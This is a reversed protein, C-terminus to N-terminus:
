NARFGTGRKEDYNLDYSEGRSLAEEALRRIEETMNLDTLMQKNAWVGMEHEAPNVRFDVGHVRAVCTLQICEKRVTEEGRHKELRVKKETHYTFEPLMDIVCTVPLGTEELVERYMTNALTADTDDAKGSPLEFVNPYYTEHPSRKLLLILPERIDPDIQSTRLIAAGVVIKDFVQNRTQSTYAHYQAPSMSFISIQEISLEQPM